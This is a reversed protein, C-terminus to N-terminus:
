GFWTARRRRREVRWSAASWRRSCVPLSQARLVLRGHVVINGRRLDAMLLQDGDAASALCGELVQGLGEGVGSGQAHGGGGEAAPQGAAVACLDPCAQLTVLYGVCLAAVRALPFGCCEGPPQAGGAGAPQEQQQTPQDASGAGSHRRPPAALQRNCDDLQRQLDWQQQQLRAVLAKAEEAAKEERKRKHELQRQMMDEYQQRQQQLLGEYQQRQQQALHLQQQVSEIQDDRSLVTKELEIVTGQCTSNEQHLQVIQQQLQVIQQQLDAIQQEASM